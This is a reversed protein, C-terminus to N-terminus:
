TSVRSRRSLLALLLAAVCLGCTSTRCTLARSSSRSSRARRRSPRRARSPSGRTASRAGSSSATACSSSTQSRPPSSTLSPEDAYRRPPLSLPSPSSSARSVSMIWWHLMWRVWPPQAEIAKDDARLFAPGTEIIGRIERDVDLLLDYSLDRDGRANVDDFFRRICSAVKHAVLIKSM